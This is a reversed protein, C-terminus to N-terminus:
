RLRLLGNGGTGLPGSELRFIAVVEGLRDAQERLSEAAAASQEVLAANQQTMQDLQNIATNVQAIGDSQERAGASIDGIIDSVRQVSQMIEQMTAGAQSVLESGTDVKEVSTQILAKIEKAANASRQALSRVEAAVVAFGRGQEGARAAEVAANLALINTQFAIGDIVGIIDSIKRSSQNIDEMTSVVQTMVSGGKSASQAAAAALQNAQSAAEASQQVTSTLEEMSSATEELSSAAQETRGSLDQNGTAIEASAGAISHTAQRVSLVTQQLSGQARAMATQLTVFENRGEEVESASLDGAGIREAAAICKQISRRFGVVFQWCVLVAVAIGIVALVVSFRIMRDFSTEIAAELLRMEELQHNSLAQTVEIYRQTVPVFRTRVLERAGADDGADKVKNIDDRVALWEVRVKGVEDALRRSEPSVALELFTKQTVTTGRSTAAMDERFFELMTTGEAQAVALSRASNQRVDGLWDDALKLLRTELEIRQSQDRVKSIEFLTFALVVLFILVVSAFGLGLRAAVSVNKM